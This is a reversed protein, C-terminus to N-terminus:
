GRYDIAQGRLASQRVRDRGHRRPAAPLSAQRLEALAGPQVAITAPVADHDLRLARGAGDARCASEAAPCPLSAAPRAADHDLHLAGPAGFSIVAVVAGTRATYAFLFRGGTKLVSPRWPSFGSSGMPTPLLLSVAAQGRAPAPTLRRSGTRPESNLQSHRWIQPGSGPLLGKFRVCERSGRNGGLCRPCHSYLHHDEHSSSWTICVAGNNGAMSAPRYSTAM